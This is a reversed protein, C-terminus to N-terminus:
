NIVMLGAWSLRSVRALLCTDLPEQPGEPRRGALGRGRRRDLGPGQHLADPQAGPPGGVHQRPVVRRNWLNIVYGTLLRNPFSAAAVSDKVPGLSLYPLCTPLCQGLEKYKPDKPWNHTPWKYEVQVIDKFGAKELHEKYHLAGDLPAGIKESAEQLLLHWRNLASDAPLTDDDTVM